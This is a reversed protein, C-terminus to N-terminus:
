IHILSLNSLQAAAVAIASAHEGNSEISKNLLDIFHSVEAAGIAIKSTQVSIDHEPSSLRNLRLANEDPNPAKISLFRKVIWLVWVCVIGGLVLAHTLGSLSIANLLLSGFVVLVLSLAIVIKHQLEM